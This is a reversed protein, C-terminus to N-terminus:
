GSCTCMRMALVQVHGVYGTKRSFHRFGQPSLDMDTLPQVLERAQPGVRGGCCTGPTVDGVRVGRPAHSSSGGVAFLPGQDVVTVDTWGRETLEDALACGVIGAGVIVLRPRSM